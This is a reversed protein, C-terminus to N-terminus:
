YQINNIIGLIKAYQSLRHSRYQLCSFRKQPIFQDTRSEVHAVSHYGPILLLKEGNTGYWPVLQYHCLM